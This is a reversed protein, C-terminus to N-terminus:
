KRGRILKLVMKVVIPVIFLVMLSIIFIRRYSKNMGQKLTELETQSMMQSGYYSDIEMLRKKRQITLVIYLTVILGLSVTFLIVMLDPNSFLAHIWKDFNFIWWSSDKLWWLVLTFLGGYFMMSFTIWNHRVQKKHLSGYLRSIFPPADVLGIALDERYRRLSKILYKREGLTIMLKYMSGLLTASPIILSVWMSSFVTFYLVIMILSAIAVLGSIAITALQRYREWNIVKYIGNPIVGNPDTVSKKELKKTESVVPNVFKITSTDYMPKIDM